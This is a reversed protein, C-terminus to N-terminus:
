IEDISGGTVIYTGTEKWSKLEANVKTWDEIMKNLIKEIGFEKSANDSIEEIQSLFKMIETDKLLRRLQMDKDASITIGVIKTIEDWHRPKLGPNCM